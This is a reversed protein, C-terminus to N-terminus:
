LYHSLKSVNRMAVVSWGGMGLRRVAQLEEKARRWVQLQHQPRWASIRRRVLPKNLYCSRFSPQSFLHLAAHFDAALPLDTAFGGIQQLWARRVFLCPMAPAWGWRLKRQSFHGASLHRVVLWPADDRVHKLDGYVACLSPDRLAQAVQELVQGHEFSDGAQMFCLVDGSAQALGRNWAQYVSEGALGPLFRTGSPHLPPDNNANSQSGCVLHEVATHTQTMVPALCDQWSHRPNQWATIVSITLPSAPGSCLDVDFPAPTDM